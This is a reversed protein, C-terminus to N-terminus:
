GLLLDSFHLGERAKGMLGREASRSNRYFVDFRDVAGAEGL